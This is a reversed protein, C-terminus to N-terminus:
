IGPGVVPPPAAQHRRRRVLVVILVVLAVMAAVWVIGGGILWPSIGGDVAAVPSSSPSPSPSAPPTASSPPDTPTPPATTPSPTGRVGSEVDSPSPDGDATLLPNVDEYQTPDVRLMKSLSAFGYGFHDDWILDHDGAGTNRILSQLLQNPTASPYKQAVLALISSVMPTAASTGDMLRYDTWGNGSTQMLIGVGPAAVDVFRSTNPNQQGSLGTHTRLAGSADVAQVGVLGNIRVSGDEPTLLGDKDEQNSLSAVLIVGAHEARTVAELISRDPGFSISMSIIDAGATVAADIADAIVDRRDVRDCRGGNAAPLVYYFLVTADPAIGKVGAQGPVGATGNGVILSTTSTGHEADERTSLPSSFNEGLYCAPADQVHLDADRLAAADPNIMGDLVAITVGQGTWGADHADQVQLVDFYWLGEEPGAAVAPVSGGATALLVAAVVAV